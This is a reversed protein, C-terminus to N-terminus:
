VFAFKKKEWCGSFIKHVCCSFDANYTHKAIDKFFRLLEIVETAGGAYEPKQRIEQYAGSFSFLIYKEKPLRCCTIFSM